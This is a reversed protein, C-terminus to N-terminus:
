QERNPEVVPNPRMDAFQLEAFADRLEFRRSAMIPDPSQPTLNHATSVSADAPFGLLALVHIYKYLYSARMRPDDKGILEKDSDLRRTSVFAGGAPTPIEVSFNISGGIKVGGGEAPITQDPFRVIPGVTLLDTVMDSHTYTTDADGSEYEMLRNEVIVQDRDPDYLGTVGYADPPKDVWNTYWRFDGVPNIINDPPTYSPPLPPPMEPDYRNSGPSRSM